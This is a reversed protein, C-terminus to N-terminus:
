CLKLTLLTIDDTQHSSKHMKIFNNIEIERDNANLPAIKEFFPKIRKSGIRKQDVKSIQDIIGDSLIFLTDNDNYQIQRENFIVEHHIYKQGISFKDTIKKELQGNTYHYLIGKAGAYKILKNKKDISLLTIDMGDSGYATSNNLIQDISQNLHMLINGVDNDQTELIHHLLQIGLTAVMAGPVGHGTSDGIAIFTLDGKEKLCYFDGSVIEKPLFTLTTDNFYDKIVESSPLMSNQIRKSYNISDTIKKHILNKSEELQHRHIVSALTNAIMLFFDEEDKTKKHGHEVYINLIGLVNDNIILPVNFHGHKTMGKPVIHHDSTVCNTFLLEKEILAKGCLCQGPKILACKQVLEGLDKQAVMILNGESNTVFVSGKSQINLWPLNLLIDLSEQLFINLDLKTDVSKKLVKALVNENLLHNNNNSIIKNKLILEKTNNFNLRESYQKIYFAVISIVVMPLIQLSQKLAPEFDLGFFLYPIFFLALGIIVNSFLLSWLTFFPILTFFLIRVYLFMVFSDDKSLDYIVVIGGSFYFFTIALLYYKIFWKKNVFLTYLLFLVASVPVYFKSILQIWTQNSMTVSQNGLKFFALSFVLIGLLMALRFLPLSQKIAHLRYDKEKEKSNFTLFFTNIIDKEIFKFM